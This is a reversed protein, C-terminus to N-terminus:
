VLQWLREAYSGDGVQSAYQRTAEAMSQVDQWFTSIQSQYCAIANIKADLAAKSMHHIVPQTTKHLSDRAAQVIAETDDASYPYEEYFFIAVQPWNKLWGLVVDRIVLHDVHHGAGLPVYFTANPDLQATISEPHRLVPDDPHIAGFLRELDPYLPNGQGDSRYLADPIEGFRVTGGLSEIADRDELRRGPVPDPAMEWRVFHEIIFPTMPVDSPVDGAMVTFVDVSEDTQVLQAILGGCSLVADDMHPSLLLHSMTQEARRWTAM